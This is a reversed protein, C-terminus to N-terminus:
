CYKLYNNKLGWVNNVIYATTLTDWKGPQKNFKHPKINIVHTYLRSKDEINIHVGRVNMGFDDCICVDRCVRQYGDNLQNEVKEHPFM